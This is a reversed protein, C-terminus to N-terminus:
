GVIEYSFSVEDVFYYTKDHRNYDIKVTGIYAVDGVTFRCKYASAGRKGAGECADRAREDLRETLIEEAKELSGFRNQEPADDFAELDTKAAKLAQEASKISLVLQERTMSM